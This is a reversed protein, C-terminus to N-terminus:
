HWEIQDFDADEFVKGEDKRKAVGAGEGEDEMNDLDQDEGNEQQELGNGRFEEQVGLNAEEDEDPKRNLNSAEQNVAVPPNPPVLQQIIEENPKNADSVKGVKEKEKELIDNRKVRETKEDSIIKNQDPSLVKIDNIIPTKNTSVSENTKVPKIDNTCAALQAEKRALNFKVNTMDGNVIGLKIKCDSTAIKFEELQNESQKQTQIQEVLKNNLQQKEDILLTNFQQLKQLEDKLDDVQTQMMKYQQQLSNLRNSAEKREKDHIQQYHSELDERTKKHQHIEFQLSQDLRSRHESMVQLQAALSEHKQHCKESTEKAETLKVHVNRLLGFTVLFCVCVVLSSLIRIKGNRLRSTIMTLIPFEQNLKQLDRSDVASHLDYRNMLSLVMRMTSWINDSVASSSKELGGSGSSQSNLASLFHEIAERHAGLSNCSIGLNYRSRIFGPSIDLARYYASIAEESRNSNALTAGLRNWLLADNPRMNLAAHFCDVAKDYDGSLNLLVGLGCQVDPDPEVSNLQAAALYMNLIRQYLEKNMISSVNANGPAANTSDALHKYQPHVGMWSELAHCAQEQYSENTYSVAIAMWATLNVPDLDLCRKLAAIAQPDQENEAHTTGLYHWAQTHAPDRQVAAEFLLIASPLNGEKLKELGAEFPSPHEIAPNNDEFKYEHLQNTVEKFDSLWPHEGFYDDKALKEWEQQLQDWFDRKNGTLDETQADFESSWASADEIGSAGESQFEHAWESAIQDEEGVTVDKNKIKEVFKMFKSNSFQQDDVQDLLQAATKSLSEDVWRAARTETEASFKDANQIEQFDLFERSWPWESTRNDADIFEKTWASIQLNEEVPPFNTRQQQQEIIQMEQILKGMHFTQPVASVAGHEQSLFEQVLKEETFPASYANIFVRRQGDLAPLSEQKFAQDRTVHQALRVVANPAGCEADVLGLNSM